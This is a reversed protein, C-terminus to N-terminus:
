NKSGTIFMDSTSAYGAPVKTTWLNSVSDFSTIPASVNDVVIKGNPIDFDTITPTSTVFNFTVSGGKFLLYDGIQTLQGSVKTTMNLWLSTPSTATNGFNTFPGHTLLCADSQITAKGTVYTPAFNPNILKGPVMRQEGVDLGTITNIGFLAGLYDNTAENVDTEDFIVGTNNTATGGGDGPEGSILPRLSSIGGNTVTLGVNNILPRLGLTPANVMPSLTSVGGGVTNILVALGLKGGGLTLVSGNILPQLSLKNILNGDDDVGVDDTSIVPYEAGNILYNLRAVVM